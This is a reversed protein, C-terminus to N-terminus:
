CLLNASDELRFRRYRAESGERIVLELVVAEAEGVSGFIAAVALPEMQVPPFGLATRRSLKTLAVKVIRKTKIARPPIVARPTCNLEGTV